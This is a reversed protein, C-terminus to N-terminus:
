YNISKQAGKKYILYLSFVILFLLMSVIQVWTGQHHPRLITFLMFRDLQLFSLFINLLLYVFFVILHGFIRHRTLFLFFLSYSFVAFSGAFLSMNFAAITNFLLPHELRLLELFYSPDYNFVAIDYVPLAYINDRGELPFAIITLILNLGLAVFFVFFSLLFVAIAKIFVYKQRATRTLIINLVGSQYEEHFSDAYIVSSLLPLLFLLTNLVSNAYTGQFISSEAASRVFDLSSGYFALCEMMFALVSLLVLFVIVFHFEYRKLGKELEMKLLNM